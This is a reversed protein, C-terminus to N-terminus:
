LSLIDPIFSLSLAVFPRTPVQLTFRNTGKQTIRNSFIFSATLQKNIKIDVGYRYFSFDQTYSPYALNLNEIEYIFFIDPILEYKTNLSYSNGWSEENNLMYNRVNNFSEAEEELGLYVDTVMNYYHSLYEKQYHRAERTLSISLNQIEAELKVGLCSATGNLKIVPEAFTLASGEGYFKLWSFIPLKFYPNIYLHSKLLNEREAGVHCLFIGSSNQYLDFGLIQLDEIRTFGTATWFSYIEGFPLAYKLSLGYYEEDKLLLGNGFTKSGLDGIQGLFGNSKYTYTLHSYLSNNVLYGNSINDSEYHVVLDILHETMDFNFKLNTFFGDHYPIEGQEAPVRWFLAGPASISVKEIAFCSSQLLIIMIIGLVAM